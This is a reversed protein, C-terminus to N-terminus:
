LIHFTFTNILNRLQGVLQILKLLLSSRKSVFKVHIVLVKNLKISMEEDDDEMSETDDIEMPEDQEGERTWREIKKGVEKKIWGWKHESLDSVTDQIEDMENFMSELLKDLETDIICVPKTHGPVNSCLSVSIPVHMVTYQLRGDGPADLKQLMAEFDYAIFWPFIQEEPPIQIDCVELKEFITQQAKCFGGPYVYKTKNTCIKEHKQLCGHFHRECTQCQYEKAYCKFNKIYSLNNEFMNLYMTEPYRCLSKYICLATDDERLQYM